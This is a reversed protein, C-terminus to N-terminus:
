RSVKGLDVEKGPTVSLERKLMQSRGTLLEYKMGPVLGEM